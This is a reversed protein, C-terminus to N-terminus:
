CKAVLSTIKDIKVCWKVVWEVDWRKNKVDCGIGNM